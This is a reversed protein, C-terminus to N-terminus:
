VTPQALRRAEKVVHEFHGARCSALEVDSLNRGWYRWGESADKLALYHQIFARDFNKQIQKWRGEHSKAPTEGARRLAADTFHLASYFLATSAWRRLAPEGAALAVFSDQNERGLLWARDVKVDDGAPV